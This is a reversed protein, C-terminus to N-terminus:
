GHDFQAQHWAVCPELRNLSPSPNRPPFQVASQPLSPRWSRFRPAVGARTSRSGLCRAISRLISDAVWAATKQGAFTDWPYDQGREEYAPDAWVSNFRPRRTAIRSVFFGRRFRCDPQSSRSRFLTQGTAANILCSKEGLRQVIRGAFNGENFGCM